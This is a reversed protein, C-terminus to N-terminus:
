SLKAFYKLGNGHVDVVIDNAKSHGGDCLRCTLCIKKYNAAASSPCIVETKTIILDDKSKVRFTRWGLAKAKQQEEATFCSAMLYKKYEANDPNAWQRTYGTHYIMKSVVKDWIDLPVAAPDGYSGLRIAINKYALKSFDELVPYQGAAYAKYVQGFSMPNVYCVREKGEEPRLPCNGCVSIDAGTKLAEQPHMDERMIWTQLMGTTKRNSSPTKIATILLLIPAGDFRSAGKYAIYGNPIKNM